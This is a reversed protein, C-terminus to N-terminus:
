SCEYRGNRDGIQKKFKKWEELEILDVCKNESVRGNFKDKTESDYWFSTYDEIWQEETNYRDKWIETDWKILKFADDM